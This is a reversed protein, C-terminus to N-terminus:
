QNNSPPPPPPTSDDSTDMRRTDDMMDHHGHMRHHGGFDFQVGATVQQGFSIKFDTTKYNVQDDKLYSYEVGGINAIFAMCPTIHIGLNPFLGVHFGNQNYITETPPNQLGYKQQDHVYDINLQDYFFFRSGSYMTYRVFGGINYTDYKSDEVGNPASNGHGYGLNLGLGWNNNLQYGIGPTISGMHTKTVTVDNSTTNNFEYSGSGYVFVDGAHQANAAAFAGCATLTLMLKKM